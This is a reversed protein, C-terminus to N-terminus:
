SKKWGELYQCARTFEVEIQDILQANGEMQGERARTELERALVSLQHAGLTASSSKMTHGSRMLTTADGASLSQRAQAILRAGDKHFSEIVTPMLLDAKKGLAAHLRLLTAEQVVPAQDPADPPQPTPTAEQPTSNTPPQARTETPHANPAPTNESIPRPHNAQARAVREQPIRRLAAIIDEGLIPKSLYDDMGAGLCIERDGRMANATMAIIWPQRDPSFDKRIRRTAELGDMEPMQVDMFVLDYSQRKLALLAEYGNAAIDCRYGMVDLQMSALKQNTSNDDVLLINFPMEQALLESEEADESADESAPPADEEAQAFVELLINFLQSPKVPKTLLALFEKQRPDDLDIGMSTLMILPLNKGSPSHHIAEALMLGDMEPMQMDLIGLDFKEGAELLKLAIPGSEVTTVQMHWSEAELRMVKLNTQNDDVVLVRRGSLAPQETKRYDPPEDQPCRARITFHFASGQYPESEVWIKGGLMETLLRSIALGLGSGGFKRTTSSDVQSFSHFLRHMREPPIGIGTDRVLFHLEHLPMDSHNEANTTEIPTSQILLTIEGQHTFKIANSLLNLLIQRLRTSDSVIRAPTDPDISYILDLGKQAARTAMLDVAPEICERLDFVQEELELKGAEIKSFDLIDNIITLLTDGSSRITEAFDQQRANLPTNMLLRSMGIIANMPTRIEHSMNALFESKSRSAAEAIARAQQAEQNAAALEATREAVKEALIKEAAQLQIVEAQHAKHELEISESLLTQIRKAMQNFAVALDSLEDNSRIDIQYGLDGNALALAGNKLHRLPSWFAVETLLLSALLALVLGIAAFPLVQELSSSQVLQREEMYVNAELIGIVQDNQPDIIPVVCGYYSGFEDQYEVFRFQRDAFTQQHAESPRFLPYGTGMDDADVWYFWRGNEVSYAGVWALNATTRAQDMLSRVSEYQETKIDAPSRIQLLASTDINETVFTATRRLRSDLETVSRHYTERYIWFVATGLVLTILVVLPVMLKIFLPIRANM